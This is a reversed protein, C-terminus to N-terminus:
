IHVDPTVKVSQIMRFEPFYHALPHSVSHHPFQYIFPQFGSHHFCPLQAVPCLSRGLSPHYGWDQAIDVQMFHQVFPKGVFHLHAEFPPSEEHSVCIVKDHAKLVLFISLPDICHQRLAKPFVAQIEMWGFGSQDWKAAGARLLLAALPCRLLSLAYEVKKGEGMIPPLCAFSPIRDFALCGGLPHAPAEFRNALPHLALQMQWDPVLPFLPSASSRKRSAALRSQCLHTLRRLRCLPPM